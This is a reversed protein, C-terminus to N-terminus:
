NHVTGEEDNYHRCDRYRETVNENQSPKPILQLRKSEHHGANHCDRRYNENLTVLAAFGRAFALLTICTDSIKRDMCPSLVWAPRGHM